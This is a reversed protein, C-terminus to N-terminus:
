INFSKFESKKISVNGLYIFQLLQKMENISVDTCVVTNCREEKELLEKMLTSASTLINKHAPIMVKDDCVITVDTFTHDTFLDNITDVNGTRSVRSMM